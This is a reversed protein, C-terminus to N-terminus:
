RQFGPLSIRRKSRAGTKGQQNLPVDPDCGPPFKDPYMMQQGMAECTFAYLAWTMYFKHTGLLRSIALNARVYRYPDTNYYDWSQIGYLDHLVALALMHVSATSHVREPSTLAAFNEDFDGAIAADFIERMQRKANANGGQWRKLLHLGDPFSFNQINM